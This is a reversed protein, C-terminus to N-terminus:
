TTQRVTGRYLLVRRYYWPLGSNRTGPFRSIVQGDPFDPVGRSNILFNGGYVDIQGRLVLQSSLRGGTNKIYKKESRDRGTFTSPIKLWDCVQEFRSNVM